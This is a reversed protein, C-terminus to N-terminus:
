FDTGYLRLWMALDPNEFLFRRLDPRIEDVIPQLRELYGTPVPGDNRELASLVFWAPMFWDADNLVAATRRIAETGNGSLALAGAGFLRGRLTDDSLEIYRRILEEARSENGAKAALMASELLASHDIWEGQLHIQYFNAARNLDNVAVALRAAVLAADPNEPDDWEILGAYALAAEMDNPDIAFAAEIDEWGDEDGLDWLRMFGRELYAQIFGPDM